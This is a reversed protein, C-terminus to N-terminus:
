RLAYLAAGPQRAAPPRAPGPDAVCHHVRDRGDIAMAPGNEPCGDLVWHDDSVRLPAAFTRGNDRSVTFAIDRINGPYVHRWAAYLSGNPGAAVATKCCYCVGGTLARPDGSGDLRSFYLKSLEAKAAGDTKPAQGTHDQGEHHM